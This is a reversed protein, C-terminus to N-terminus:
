VSGYPPNRTVLLRIVWSHLPLAKDKLFSSQGDFSSNLMARTAVYGCMGPAGSPPPMSSSCRCFGKASTTYPNLSAKWYACQMSYVKNHWCYQLFGTLAKSLNLVPRRRTM